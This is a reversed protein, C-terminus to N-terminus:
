NKKFLVRYKRRMTRKRSKVGYISRRKTKDPHGGCDYPGRVCRYSTGPIDRAGGGRVLIKCFRKVNHKGGPIHATVRNGNSLVIKAVPRKASNPKRPTVLRTRKTM